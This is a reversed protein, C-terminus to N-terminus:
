KDEKKYYPSFFGAAKIPLEKCWEYNACMLDNVENMLISDMVEGDKTEEMIIEDHVHLVPMHGAKALNVMALALLDRAIAQVINEVFKGDYIEILGWKKSKPHRGSYYTRYNDICANHYYLRKGSPLQIVLSGNRMFIYIKSSEGPIDYRYTKGQNLALKVMEGINHWFRVTYPNAARWQRVLKLCGDDSWSSVIAQVAKVSGRYGCAIEATKARFRQISDVQDIPVNFMKSALAEYIKGDGRFVELSWTEGALWSRVRPEIASFDIILYQKGKAPVFMTRSLQSLHMPINSDQFNFKDRDMNLYKNRVSDLDPLNNKKMNKVQVGYSNWRHTQAGAYGETNHIRGNVQNDRVYYFKSISTKGMYKKKELAMKVIPHKSTEIVQDIHDKDLSEFELDPEVLRIWAKWQPNSNPNTIGTLGVIQNAMYEKYRADAFCINNILDLDVGIGKMNMYQDLSWVEREWEPIQDWIFSVKNYLEREALVDQACYTKFEQWKEPSDHPMIRVGRYPKCFYNILSKGTELKADKLKLIESLEGLGGPYNLLHSMAMTCRWERPKYPINLYQKFCTGEFIANHAIKIFGPDRILDELEDIRKEPNGKFGTFDIIEVPENNIAYCGIMIEFLDDNAYNTVTTKNLELRSYTEIDIFLKDM